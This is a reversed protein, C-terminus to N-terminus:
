FFRIRLQVVADATQMGPTYSMHPSAQPYIWWECSTRTLMYQIKQVDEYNFFKSEVICRDGVVKLIMQRENSRDNRERVWAGLRDICESQSFTAM